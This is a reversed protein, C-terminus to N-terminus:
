KLNWVHIIMKELIPITKETLVMRHTFKRFDMIGWLTEKKSIVMSSEDTYFGVYSHTRIGRKYYVVIITDGIKFEEIM